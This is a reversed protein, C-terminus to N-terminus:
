SRKATSRSVSSINARAPAKSLRWSSRERVRLELTENLTKLEGLARERDDEAQRQRTLDRLIKTFGDHNGQDDDLRALIGSGWFHSGDKRLHWGEEPIRGERRAAEREQEFAGQKRDEPTFIIAASQGVAEEKTYGLVREAGENWTLIRGDNDLTFIAFDETQEVVQRYREYLWEPTETNSTTDPAM